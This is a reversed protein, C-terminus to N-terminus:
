FGNPFRARMAPRSYLERLFAEFQKPTANGHTGLWDVVEEDVDRHWKQYGNHAAKNAARTVFRPDRETYHGRLTGHEELRKAIRKSIVHHLQGSPAPTVQGAGAGGAVMAIATTPLSIVVTRGLIAVAHVQGVNALHIGVQSAGVAAAETFSPLMALRSALWAAGGAMGHSMVVTVALVLVRAVQPGVRHAFREGAQQLEVPTTAVDTARKLERSAEVVELFTDVGLYVLLLASVIAASKTFVPEPNAALVAWTVLGTSIVAYFLQPALTDQVARSISQKMPDLSLGLALGLKDWEGLRMVDDLLSLCDRRRQGAQCVGGYGQTMLRQWRTDADGGPHSARVLWGQQAARLTLPAELVLRTLAEEFADADVRVPRSAPPIYELPAGQGTELRVTRSAGCAAALALLLVAVTLRLTM